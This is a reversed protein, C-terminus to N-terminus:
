KTSFLREMEHRSVKKRKQQTWELATGLGKALQLATPRESPEKRFCAQVAFYLAQESIKKSQVIKEPVFPGIGDDKRQVIEPITLKGGPELHTWPQRRTLVQFLLNGLGYVDTPPGDVMTQHNEEPSKWFPAAFRVPTQCTTATSTTNTSSTTTTSTATTNRRLLNGINFDNLKVRGQVVVANAMNFDNHTLSPPQDTGDISHVDALAQALDRGLALRQTSKWQKDKVFLRASGSSLETLVSHGCFGFASVIGPSATLREMAVADVRHYELADHTFNRRLHLLKLM